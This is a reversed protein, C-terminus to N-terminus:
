TEKNSTSCPNCYFKATCVLAGYFRQSQNLLYPVMEQQVRNQLERQILEDLDKNTHIEHALRGERAIKGLKMVTVYYQWNGMRGQLAPIYDSM